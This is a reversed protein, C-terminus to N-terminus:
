FGQKRKKKPPPRGGFRGPVIQSAAIAIQSPGQTTQTQSSGAIASPPNDTKMTPPQSATVIETAQSSALQQAQSAAAEKRQRRLHREARRLSRMREKETTGEDAEDDKQALKKSTSVWEYKSPDEGVEWHSLVNRLGRPLVTPAPNAFSTYRSLRHLEPAAFSSSHGSATTLSPTGTPSPTPLASPQTAYRSASPSSSQAQLEAVPEVPLERKQSSSQTLVKGEQMDDEEVVEQVQVAQSALLIEAAIQRAVAVKGLRTWGPIQSSLPSIWKPILQEYISALNGSSLDSELNVVGPLAIARLKFKTTEDVPDETYKPATATAVGPPEAFCRELAQSSQEVDAVSVASGAIDSLTRMSPITESVRESLAKRIETEVDEITRSEPLQGSLAKVVATLNINSSPQETPTATRRACRGIPEARKLVAEDLDYDDVIFSESRLFSGSAVPKANLPKPLAGRSQGTQQLAHFFVNEDLSGDKLCIAAYYFQIDQTLRHQLNALESPRRRNSTMKVPQIRFDRISDLHHQFYRSFLTFDAPDKILAHDPGDEVDFRYCTVSSSVNSCVAVHIGSEEKWVKLKLTLDEPNRYHLIRAKLGVGIKGPGERMTKYLALHRSSLLCFYEPQDSPVVFDLLWTGHGFLTASIQKVCKTDEGGIGFFDLSSRTCVAVIDVNLVWSIRAWGDDVVSVPEPRKNRSPPELLRVVREMTRTEFELVRWAGTVDVVGVQQPFWPNFSVDVHSRGGTQELGISYLLNPDLASSSGKVAVRRITPRFLLTKGLLRVALLAEGHEIPQAFHVQQIPGGDCSWQIEEGRLSPVELWTSPDREWGYKRLSVIILRLVTKDAGAALAAVPVLRHLVASRINAFAMLDGEIPVHRHAAEVAAESVRLLPPLISSAPQLEPFDTALAQIQKAYRVSPPEARRCSGSAVPLPSLDSAELRQLRNGASLTRGFRWTKEGPDYNVRGFHGYPLDCKSKEDM